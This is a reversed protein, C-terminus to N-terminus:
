GGEGLRGYRGPTKPYRTLFQFGDNVENFVENLAPKLIGLLSNFRGLYGSCLM